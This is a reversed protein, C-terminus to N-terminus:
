RPCEDVDDDRNGGTIRLGAVVSCQDFPEETGTQGFDV